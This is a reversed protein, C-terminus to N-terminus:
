GSSEVPAYERRGRNAHRRKMKIWPCSPCNSRPEPVEQLFHRQGYAMVMKRERTAHDGEGQATEREGGWRKKLDGNRNKLPKEVREKQTGIGHMYSVGLYIAISVCNGSAHQPRSKKFKM